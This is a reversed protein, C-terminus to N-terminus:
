PQILVKGILPPTGDGGAYGQSAYRIYDYPRPEM